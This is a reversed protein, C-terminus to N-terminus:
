SELTPSELEEFLALYQMRKPVTNVSVRILTDRAGVLLGTKPDRLGGESPTRITM